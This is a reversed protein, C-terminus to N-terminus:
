LGSSWSTKVRLIAENILTKYERGGPKMSKPIGFWKRKPVKANPFWNKPDSPNTYGTNHYAGYEQGMTLIFKPKSITAPEKKINKMKGTRILIPGSSGRLSKTTDSLPAFSKDNIDKGSNINDQISKNIRSGMPNLVHKIIIKDLKNALKKANNNWIKKM